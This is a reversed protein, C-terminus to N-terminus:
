KKKSQMNIIIQNLIANDVEKKANESELCEFRTDMATMKVTLDRSILNLTDNMPRNVENTISILHRLTLPNESLPKDLIEPEISSNRPQVNQLQTPDNSPSTRSLHVQSNFMSVPNAPTSYASSSISSAHNMNPQSNIINPLFTSPTQIVMNPRPALAPITPRSMQSHTFAM